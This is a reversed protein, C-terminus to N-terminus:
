ARDPRPRRPARAAGRARAAARAAPRPRRPRRARQPETALVQEGHQQRAVEIRDHARAKRARHAGREVAVGRREHAQAPAGVRDVTRRRRRVHEAGREVRRGGALLRRERPRPRRRRVRQRTAGAGLRGGRRKRLAGEQGEIARGRDVVVDDVQAAAPRGCRGDGAERGPGNGSTGTSTSSPSSSRRVGTSLARRTAALKGCARRSTAGPTPWEASPASALPQLVTAKPRKMSRRGKRVRQRRPRRSKRGIGGGGRPM